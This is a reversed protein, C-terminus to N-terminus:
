KELSSHERLKRRHGDYKQGAGGGGEWGGDGIVADM